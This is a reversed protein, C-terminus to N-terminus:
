PAPQLDMPPPSDATSAQSDPGTVPNASPATIGFRALKPLIVGLHRDRDHIHIHHQLYWLWVDVPMNGRKGNCGDCAAVINEPNNGGGLSKPILHDTTLRLSPFSHWESETHRYMRHNCWFCRGGQAKHALKRRGRLRKSVM